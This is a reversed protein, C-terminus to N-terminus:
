IGCLAREETTGDIPGGTQEAAMAQAYWEIAAVTRPAIAYGRRYQYEATTTLVALTAANLDALALRHQAAREPFDRGPELSDALYVIQALPAMAPAGLTHLRIADLVREDRIGYSERAIEAGLPAHLVIPNALEFEDLEMGRRVCEGLLDDASWLRAVDHLLGSTVADAADAGHARALSGALRAVRLTHAFRHAQDLERRVARAIERQTL